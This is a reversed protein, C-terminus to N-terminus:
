NNEGPITHPSTREHKLQWWLLYRLSGMKQFKSNCAELIAVSNDQQFKHQVFGCFYVILPILLGVPKFHEQLFHTELSMVLNMIDDFPFMKQM